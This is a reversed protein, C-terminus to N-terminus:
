GKKSRALMKGRSDLNKDAAMRAARDQIEDKHERVFKVAAERKMGTRMQSAVLARGVDTEEFPTERPPLVVPRPAALPASMTAEWKAKMQPTPRATVKDITAQAEARLQAQTMMMMPRNPRMAEGAELAARDLMSLIVGHKQLLTLNNM